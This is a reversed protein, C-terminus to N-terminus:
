AGCIHALGFVLISKGAIDFYPAIEPVRTHMLLAIATPLCYSTTKLVKSETNRYFGRGQGYSYLSLMVFAARVDNAVFGKLMAWTLGTVVAMATTQILKTAESKLHNEASWAPAVKVGLHEEFFHSGIGIATPLILGFASCVGAAKIGNFRDACQARTLIIICVLIFAVQKLSNIM